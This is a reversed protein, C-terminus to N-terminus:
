TPLTKITSITFEERSIKIKYGGQSWRCRWGPTKMRIIPLYFCWGDMDLKYLKKIRPTYRGAPHDVNHLELNLKSTFCKYEIEGFDLVRFMLAAKTDSSRIDPFTLEIHSETASKQIYRQTKSRDKSIYIWCNTPLCIKTIKPNEWHLKWINLYTVLTPPPNLHNKEIYVHILEYLDRCSKAVRAMTLADTYKLINLWIELPFLM